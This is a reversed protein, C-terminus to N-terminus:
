PCLTLPLRKVGFIISSPLRELPYTRDAAFAPFRALLSQIAIRAELRALLAGLCFHIGHGFALHPNPDRAIDFTEPSAFVDEDHNASGIWLQVIQGATLRFGRFETDATVRRIMHQVPSCYRLVEEIAGPLQAESGILRARAEESGNLCLLASSILNTTTENGAVLLLICFGILELESLRENNISAAVLRSILDDRPELRRSEVVDSFYVSMEQQCRFFDDANNGVLEDSWRKFLGIDEPPIGLMDAIILVPLPGTFEGVADIAAGKGKAEAEDLLRDTVAQIRPVLSEIARPTFAQSVLSRLQRHKPPDKRLISAEIPEEKTPTRGTHSSFREHDSFIAKVDSYKYVSWGNSDPHYLVPSVSRRDRFKVLPLLHEPVIPSM